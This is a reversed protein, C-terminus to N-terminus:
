LSLEMKIDATVFPSDVAPIYQFGFKEYLRLATKLQHNSFLIVKQLNMKAAAALCTQILLKGIGKGQMDSRVSVNALECTSTHEFTLAATGIIEKEFEAMFIVGGSKLITGEPNNLVKLDAEETLQYKDLWALNLQKFVQQHQPEYPIINIM